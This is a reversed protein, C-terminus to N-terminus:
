AGARLLMMPRLRKFRLNNPDTGTEDSNIRMVNSVVESVDPGFATDGRGHGGMSFWATVGAASIWLTVWAILNQTPEGHTISWAIGYVLWMAVAERLFKLLSRDLRRSLLNLVTFGVMAVATPYHTNVGFGDPVFANLWGAVYGFAVGILLRGKEPLYRDVEHGLKTFARKFWTRVPHGPIPLGIVEDIAREIAKPEIDLEAAIQRLDAITVGDAPDQMRVARDIIKRLQAETLVIEEPLDSKGM